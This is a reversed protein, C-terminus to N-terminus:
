CIEIRGVRDRAHSRLRARTLAVPDLIGSLGIIVLHVDVVSEEAHASM